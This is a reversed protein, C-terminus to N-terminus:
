IWGKGQCVCAQYGDEHHDSNCNECFSVLLPCYLGKSHGCFCKHVNVWEAYGNGSMKGRYDQCPQQGSQFDRM